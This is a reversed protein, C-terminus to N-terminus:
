YINYVYIKVVYQNRNKPIKKKAMKRPLFVCFVPGSQIHVCRRIDFGGFIGRVQFVVGKKQAAVPHQGNWNDYAPGEPTTSSNQIKVDM